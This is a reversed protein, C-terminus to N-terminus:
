QHEPGTLRTGSVRFKVEQQDHIKGMNHNLREVELWRGDATM